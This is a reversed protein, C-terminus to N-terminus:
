WPQFLLAVAAVELPRTFMIALRALAELLERDSAGALRRDMGLLNGFRDAIMRRVVRDEGAVDAQRRHPRRAIERHVALPPQDPREPVAGHGVGHRLCDA